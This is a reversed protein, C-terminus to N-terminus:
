MLKILKNVCSTTGQGSFIISDKEDTNLYRRVITKAEIRFNESQEALYGCSSHVNAYFPLVQKSIFDEIQKIGRGSATYDAYIVNKEGYPTKFKLNNGIINDFLTNMYNEQFQTSNQNFKIQINNLSCPNDCNIENSNNNCNDNLNNGDCSDM